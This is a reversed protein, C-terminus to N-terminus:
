EGIKLAKESPIELVITTVAGTKIPGIQKDGALKVDRGAVNHKSEEASYALKEKV